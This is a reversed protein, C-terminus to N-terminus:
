PAGCAKAVRKALPSAPHASLFADRMSRCLATQGLRAVADIRAAEADELFPLGAGHATAFSLADLAAQPDDLSQLRIRGLEFAGLAARSDEPYKRILMEFAHVAEATRGALRAADAREFLSRASEPPDAPVRPPPRPSPAEVSASPPLEVVRPPAVLPETSWDGRDVLHVVDGTTPRITAEGQELHVRVIATNEPRPTVEIEVDSAGAVVDAESTSVVLRRQGRADGVFAILGRELRMDIDDGHLSLIDVRTRPGAHFTVGDGLHITDGEDRTEIVVTDPHIVPLAARPARLVLFLSALAALAAAFAIAPVVFARRTRARPAASIRSWVRDLRADMPPLAVFDARTKRNPIAKM